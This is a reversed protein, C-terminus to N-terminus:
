PERQDIAGPLPKELVAFVLDPRRPVGISPDGYPFPREEGTPQYGRRQYWAILSERIAIVTMQARTAGQARAHYVAAGLIVRGLGAAQLEPRVTVMGIYAKAEGIAEIMACALIDSDPSRRLILLTPQPETALDRALDELTIRQGDIYAAETTWGAQAGNGRYASNVLDVVEPLDDRTASTIFRDALITDEM